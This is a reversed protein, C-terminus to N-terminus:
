AQVSPTPRSIPALEDFGLIHARLTYANDHGSTKSGEMQFGDDLNISEGLSVRFGFFPGKM